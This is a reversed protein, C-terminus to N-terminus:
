RHCRYHQTFRHGAAHCAKRQRHHCRHRQAVPHRNHLSLPSRAHIAPTPAAMNWTEHIHVCAHISMPDFLYGFASARRKSSRLAQEVALRRDNSHATVDVGMQRACPTLDGDNLRRVIQFYFTVIAILM